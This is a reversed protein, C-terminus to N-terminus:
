WGGEKKNVIEAGPFEERLASVLSEEQSEDYDDTDVPFWVKMSDDVFRDVSEEEDWALAEVYWGPTVGPQDDWHYLLTTVDNYRTYTKM